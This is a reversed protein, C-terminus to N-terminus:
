RPLKLKIGGLGGSGVIFKRLDAPFQNTLGRATVGYQGSSGSVYLEYAGPPVHLVFSGNTATMAICRLNRGDAEVRVGLVPAGSADVIVGRIPAGGPLRANIGSVARSDIVINTPTYGFGSKALYGSPYGLQNDILVIYTDPWLGSIEFTGDTGTTAGGSIGGSNAQEAVLHVDAIPKGDPGTITGTISVQQTGLADAWERKFSNLSFERMVLPGNGGTAYRWLDLAGRSAATDGTHAAVILLWRLAYYCGSVRESNRVYEGTPSKGACGSLSDVMRAKPLSGEPYEDGIASKLKYAALIETQARAITTSVGTTREFRLVLAKISAAFPDPM